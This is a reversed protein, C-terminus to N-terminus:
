AIENIQVKFGKLSEERLHAHTHTDLNTFNVLPNKRTFIRDLDEQCIICGMVSEGVM